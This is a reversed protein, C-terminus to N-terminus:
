ALFDYKKEIKPPHPAHAPHAGGMYGARTLVKKEHLYIIFV